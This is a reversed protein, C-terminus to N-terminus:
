TVSDSVDISLKGRPESSLHFPTPRVGRKMVALGTAVPRSVVRVVWRYYYNTKEKKNQPDRHRFEALVKLSELQM